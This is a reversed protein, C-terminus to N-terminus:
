ASAHASKVRARRCENTTELVASTVREVQDDTLDPYIPLSICRQYEHEACPFDGRRYGFQRQYYTHLHLPKFHVSCGIGKERLRQMFNNRDIALEDLKLRLIYLHWSNRSDPSERPIELAADSEFARSYREGIKRRADSMADSKALQVIGIAAQLDTFNYKFGAEKVDYDPSEGTQQRKWADRGIGHLRMVRMREAAIGERTTIMGGEGTALTKTAYFSFCTFESLAGIRRSKYVSPFAHAADEIVRLNHRFAIARISDMDCPQGGLHVPIVARTKSTIRRAFDEPGLNMTIPDIDALVPRAGTYGVAEATATFTTTPVIVEDGARVGAAILALHLAATGSCVAVAHRAGVYEGFEHEFRATQPGMTLWGSRIVETVARVEEEGLSARHFPIAGGLPEIKM